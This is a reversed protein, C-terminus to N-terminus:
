FMVAAKICKKERIAELAEGFQELTYKHTVIGKVDVKGSEIYEVARPLCWMQSFSSYVDMLWAMLVEICDALM